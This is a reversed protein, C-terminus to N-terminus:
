AKSRLAISAPEGYMLDSWYVMSSTIGSDGLSVPEVADALARCWVKLLNDVALQKSIGHIFTVHAM